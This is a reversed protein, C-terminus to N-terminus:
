ANEYLRFHEIIELYICFRATKKREREKRQRFQPLYFLFFHGFITYLALTLVIASTAITLLLDLNVDSVNIHAKFHNAVLEILHIRNSIAVCSCLAKVWAFRKNVM